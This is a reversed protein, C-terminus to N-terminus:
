LNATAVNNQEHLCDVQLYFLNNECKLPFCRDDQVIRPNVDAHVSANQESLKKISNPNKTNQPVYLSEERELIQDQVQNDKAM